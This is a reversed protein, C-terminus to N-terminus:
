RVEVHQNAAVIIEDKSYPISEERGQELRQISVDKDTYNEQQIVGALSKICDQSHTTAFIQVNLRKATIFVLEWMKTMISHHLGTDIEDILVTGDKANVLSLALGLMRWIGDGMSGIPVPKKINSLKVKIGGNSKASTNMVTALQSIDPQIIKLAEIVYPEEDSLAIEDFLQVITQSNLSQTSIFQVKNKLYDKNTQFFNSPRDLSLGGNPSLRHNFNATTKQHKWNFTLDTHHSKNDSSQEIYATIDRKKGNDNAKIAFQSESSLYHGHFLHSVDIDYYINDDLNKSVLLEGKKLCSHLIASTDGMSLLAHIAELACTKGCNNTGVILNVQGLKSMRLKSFARFNTIEVDKIM